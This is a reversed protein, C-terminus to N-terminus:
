TQQVVQKVAQRQEAKKVADDLPTTYQATIIAIEYPHLNDSETDNQEADPNESEEQLRDNLQEWTFKLGHAEALGILDDPTGSNLIQEVKQALQEDNRILVRFSEISDDPM